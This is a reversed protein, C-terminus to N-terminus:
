EFVGKLKDLFSKLPKEETLKDFETLLEKQRKSLSKPTEVVVKVFEDGSGFGRLNPIGKGKIRFLTNSPTGEPIKMNITGRLTPVEVEDGLCAQKFSIPVELYLDNNERTFIKHKRVHIQVYLDGSIGGKQGAEGQGSVKLRTGNDVGKPITVEIERTKKVRGDGDCESCYETIVKGTGRCKNCPATSQFM